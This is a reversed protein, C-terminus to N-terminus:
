FDTEDTQKKLQAVKVPYLCRKEVGKELARLSYRRSDTIVTARSFAQFHHLDSLLKQPTFNRVCVVTKCISKFLCKVCVKKPQGFQLQPGCFEIWRSKVWHLM